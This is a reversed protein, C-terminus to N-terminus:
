RRGPLTLKYVEDTKTLPQIPRVQLAPRNGGPKDAAAKNWPDPQPQYSIRVEPKYRAAELDPLVLDTGVIRNRSDSQSILYEQMQKIFVPYTWLALGSAWENWRVTSPPTGRLSTGATTLFALVRGKGFPRTVVLPDGFRM